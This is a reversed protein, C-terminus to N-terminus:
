LINSNLCILFLKFKSVVKHGLYIAESKATQFEMVEQFLTTPPLALM